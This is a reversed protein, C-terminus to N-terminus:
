EFLEQQPEKGTSLRVATVKRTTIECYIEGCEELVGNKVLKNVRAAVCSTELGSMVSLQRRSYIIRPVMKEVIQRERGELGELVLSHYTKISTEAVATKM